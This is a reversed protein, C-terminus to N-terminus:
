FYSSVSYVCMYLYMSITILWLDFANENSKKTCVNYFSETTLSGLSQQNSDCRLNLHKKEEIKGEKLFSVSYNNVRSLM